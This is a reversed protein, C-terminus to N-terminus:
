MSKVYNMLILGVAPIVGGAVGWMGAKVKLMAIDVHVATMTENMTKLLEEHADLRHLVLRSYQEWGSTQEDTM